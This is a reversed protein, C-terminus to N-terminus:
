ECRCGGTSRAKYRVEVQGDREREEEDLLELKDQVYECSESGECGGDCALAASAKARQYASKAARAADHNWEGSVTAVVSPPGCEGSERDQVDIPEGDAFCLHVSPIVLRNAADRSPKAPQRTSESM